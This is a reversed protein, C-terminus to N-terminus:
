KKIFKKTYTTFEGVLQVFYIGSPWDNIDLNNQVKTNQITHVLRGTMDTIEIRKIVFSNDVQINLRHESPNPYVSWIPSTHQEVGATFSISSSSYECGFNDTVIISYSGLETILVSNGTAGPIPNGNLFWQNIGNPLPNNLIIETPTTILGPQYNSCVVGLVPASLSSCGGSNFAAVQYMGSWMPVLTTTNAGPIANGEYYWQYVYGLDETTMINQVPDYDIVPEQPFGLVVVTDTSVVAPNPLITQNTVVYSINGGSSGGGTLVCGNCGNLNLTHQGMFDDGGLWWEGVSEDAEWVEILYTSAPNLVINLDWSVPPNNDQIIPSQYIMQGNEKLIFYPDATEFSPFGGGFGSLSNVSISTLTYVAITDLNAYAAYHVVYEGPNIYLQPSPNELSSLNGNGFDWSYAMMGPNNNIFNVVVPSCGFAGQMSFGDNSNELEFPLITLPIQFSFPVGQIATLDAIINVDVMYEGALLPTGFVLGCGNVSIQPNYNCGNAANSCEWQLGVPLSVSLILFNTFNYGMTDTPLVFDLVQYYPQGVTGDPLVDPYIGVQSYSLNPSCVQAFGKGIAMLFLLSLLRKKM